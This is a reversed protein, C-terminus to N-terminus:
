SELGQPQWATRDRLMANVITLLKRMCAVLAVKKPKGADILRQYFARLVPNHVKASLAAMYLVQRVRARGGGISRRGRYAGSDRNLPAVGVLTAIQRRTLTGLEALESLLTMCAVPGIGPVDKLLQEQERWLPSAHLRAGITQDLDAVEQTLFAIHRELRRQVPLLARKLRNTEAARMELLQQRRTVLAKLEQAQADPLPRPTPRVTAAFQAIVHADLADTKALRGLARAFDRIQRPNVVATPVQALGCAVALPVELGGTAEMVVLAVQQAQALAVVAAIGAADHAFRHARNDPLVHLDLVKDSVDIGIVTHGSM